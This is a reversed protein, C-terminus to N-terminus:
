SDRGGKKIGYVITTNSIIGFSHSFPLGARLLSSQSGKTTGAITMKTPIDAKARPRRDAMALWSGM